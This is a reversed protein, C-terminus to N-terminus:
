SFFVVFICFYSSFFSNRVPFLAKWFDLNVTPAEAVRTAWSILMLLSGAALSLTSTLWPYPFANLVKKNYINFVVNLAWWTAFYVGIKMRQAADEGPLEINIEMPRSRDAEYAQCETVRKRKVLAMNETPSLYLPKQSCLQSSSTNQEVNNITPFTLLQPRSPPLKRTSFASCTLSSASCKTLSIM